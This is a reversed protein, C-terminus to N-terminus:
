CLLFVACSRALSRSDRWNRSFWVKLVMGRIFFAGFIAGEKLKWGM